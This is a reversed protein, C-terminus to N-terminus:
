AAEAHTRETTRIKEQLRQWDIPKPRLFHHGPNLKLLRILSWDINDVGEPIELFTLGRMIEEAGAEKPTEYTIEGKLGLIKVNEAKLAKKVPDYLRRLLAFVDVASLGSPIHVARKITGPRAIGLEVLRSVAEEETVSPDTILLTVRVQERRLGSALIQVELPVNERAVAGGEANKRVLSEYTVPLDVAGGGAKYAALEAPALTMEESTYFESLVQMIEIDRPAVDALRGDLIEYLTHVPLIRLLAELKVADSM